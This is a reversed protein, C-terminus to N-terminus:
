AVAIALPETATDGNQTHVGVPVAPDPSTWSESNIYTTLETPSVFSTREVHGAITIRSTPDFGKGFAHLLTDPSGIVFTSPYIATLTPAAPPKVVETLTYHDRDLPPAGNDIVIRGDATGLDAPYPM